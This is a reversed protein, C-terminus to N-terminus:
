GRAIAANLWWLMSSTSSPERQTRFEGVTGNDYTGDVGAAILVELEGALRGYDISEDANNPLLLTAWNGRVQHAQVTAGDTERGRAHSASDKRM